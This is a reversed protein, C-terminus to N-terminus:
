TIFKFPLFCRQKLVSNLSVPIVQKSLSNLKIFYLFMGKIYRNIYM